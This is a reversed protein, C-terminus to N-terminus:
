EGNVVVDATCTENQECDYYSSYFCSELGEIAIFEMCSGEDVLVSDCTGTQAQAAGLMALTIGLKL